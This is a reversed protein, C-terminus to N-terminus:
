VLNSLAGDLGAKFVGLFPADLIERPLWYWHRFGGVHFFKERTDLRCNEEKRKLGLCTKHFNEDAKEASARHKNFVLKLVRWHHFWVLASWNGGM